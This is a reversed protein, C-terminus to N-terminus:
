SLGKNKLQQILLRNKTVEKAFISGKPQGGHILISFPETSDSSVLKDNIDIPLRKKIAEEVNMVVEMWRLHYKDILHDQKGGKSATLRFNNPIDNLKKVWYNLSTTFGYFITEPNLKAYEM